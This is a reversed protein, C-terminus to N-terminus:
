RTGYEFPCCQRNNFLYAAIDVVINRGDVDDMRQVPVIPKKRNRRNSSPRFRDSHVFISVFRKSGPLRRSDLQGGVGREADRGNIANETRRTCVAGDPARPRQRTLAPRYVICTKENDRMTIAGRARTGPRCVASIVINYARPIGDRRYVLYSRRIRTPLDDDGARRRCECVGRVSIPYRPRNSMTGFLVM